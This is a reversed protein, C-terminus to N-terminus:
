CDQCPRVPLGLDLWGSSLLTGTMGGTVNYVQTFGQSALQQQMRASRNGTRCILGIPTSIDGEVERLLQEVFGETGQPQRMDIARAEAAIGTHKWEGPTRIDILILDGSQTM